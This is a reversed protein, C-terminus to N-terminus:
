WYQCAAVDSPLLVLLLLEEVGAGGVVLVSAKGVNGAVHRLACTPEFLPLPAAPSHLPVLLRANPLLTQEFMTYRLFICQDLTSGNCRGARVSSALSSPSMGAALLRFAGEDLTITALFNLSLYSM